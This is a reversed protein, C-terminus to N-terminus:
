NKEYFTTKKTMDQHELLTQNCIRAKISLLCKPLMGRKWHIGQEFHCFKHVFLQAELRVSDILYLRYVHCLMFYLFWLKLNNLM